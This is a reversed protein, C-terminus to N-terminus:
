TRGPTSEDLRRRKKMWWIILSLGLVAIAAVAFLTHGTRRIQQMGLEIDEGFHYAISIVLPVSIIAALGDWVLFRRYPMQLIGATIFITGRIGAMFRAVFVVRNGYKHFYENVKKMRGPHLLKAFLPFEFIRNGLKRGILFLLSDGGVIAALSFLIGIKLSVDGMYALYGAALLPFEEPLPLGLGCILIVFLVAAFAVTGPAASLWEFIFEVTENKVLFNPRARYYLSIFYTL